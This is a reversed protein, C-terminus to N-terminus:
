LAEAPLNAKQWEEVQRYVGDVILKDEQLSKIRALLDENIEPTLPEDAKQKERLEKTRSYYNAYLDKKELTSLRDFGSRGIVRLEDENEYIGFGNEIEM